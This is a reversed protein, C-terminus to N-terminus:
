VVSKRDVYEKKKDKNTLFAIRICAVVMGTRHDMTIHHNTDYKIGHGEDTIYSEVLFEDDAHQAFIPTFVALIKEGIKSVDKKEGFSYATESEQGWIMIGEQPTVKENNCIKKILLEMKNLTDERRRNQKNVSICGGFLLVGLLMIVFRKM